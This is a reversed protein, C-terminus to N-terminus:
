RAWVLTGAINILQSLGNGTMLTLVNSIFKGKARPLRSPERAIEPSATDTAMKDKPVETSLQPGM